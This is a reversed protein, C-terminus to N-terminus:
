PGQDTAPKEPPPAAPRTQAHFIQKMTGRTPETGSLDYILPPTSKGFRSDISHYPTPLIPMQVNKGNLARDKIPCPVFMQYCENGFAIVFICHPLPPATERRIFLFTTIGEFPRPGPTFTYYLRAIDPHFPRTHVTEQLWQIWKFDEVEAGPLLSLAMKVFAKFVAIPVHRDIPVEITLRDNTEDVNVVPNDAHQQFVFGDQKLEIRWGAPGERKLAPVGDKGTVQYFTRLPKSWKGFETDIGRGFKDNCTDCEYNTILSKNGTAEPLAHTEQTFKVEPESKGCFRCTKAARDGLYRKDASGLGINVDVLRYNEEYFSIVNDAVANSPRPQLGIVKQFRMWVWSLFKRLM